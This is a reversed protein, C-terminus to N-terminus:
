EVPPALPAALPKKELVVFLFARIHQPNPSASSFTGTTTSPLPAILSHLSVPSGSGTLLRADSWNIPAVIFV